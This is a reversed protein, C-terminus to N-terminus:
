LAYGHDLLGGAALIERYRNGRQINVLKAEEVEESGPRYKSVEGYWYDFENEAEVMDRDISVLAKTVAKKLVDKYNM